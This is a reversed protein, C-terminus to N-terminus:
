GKRPNLKRQRQMVQPPMPPPIYEDSGPYDGRTPPNIGNRQRTRRPSEPSFATVGRHHTTTPRPSNMVSNQRPTRPLQLSRKPDPLTVRATQSGSKVSVASTMPEAQLLPPVHERATKAGSNTIRQRGIMSATTPPRPTRTAGVPPAM